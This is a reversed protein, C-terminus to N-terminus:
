APRRDEITIGDAFKGPQFKDAQFKGPQRPPPLASPGPSTLM